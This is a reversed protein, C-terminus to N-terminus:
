GLIVIIKRALYGISFSISTVVVVIVLMQFFRKSFREKKVVSAYYNFFALLGFVLAISTSLALYPNSIFFFPFVVTIVAALYTFATYFAATLPNREEETSTSLYESSSMSLCASIGMILSTIGVLNSSKLALTLGAVTGLLEVVGDNLGLVMSSMYELREENILEILSNEHDKEDKAITVLEPYFKSLESYISQAKEEGNEMHKLAFQYGLILSLLTYIKVKLNDQVPHKGTIKSLVEYHKKEQDAINLLIKRKQPDSERKALNLYIQHETIENKQIQVLLDINKNENRSLM